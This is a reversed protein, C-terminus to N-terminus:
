LSALIAIFVFFYMLMFIASIIVGAIALGRGPNGPTKQSKSLGVISCILGPLSTIGYLLGVLSLVFGVTAITNKVQVPYYVPQGYGQYTPQVYQPAPAQYQPAQYQPAPAQYQPAPAQYQPEPAQYQPAPAQYQPEPTQYQPAPAQYQPEPTQYQPESAQYQPAQYQPTQYQPAQYQSEPAQTQQPQSQQPQVPMAQVPVPQQPQVAQQQQPEPNSSMGCMECFYAGDPMELGCHACHM